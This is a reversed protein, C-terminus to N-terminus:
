AVLRHSDARLRRLRAASEKLRAREERIKASQGKENEAALLVMAQSLLERSSLARHPYPTNRGAVDAWEDRQFLGATFAEFSSADVKSFPRRRRRVSRTAPTKAARVDPSKTTKKM